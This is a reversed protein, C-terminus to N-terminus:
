KNQRLFVRIHERRALLRLLFREIYRFIKTALGEGGKLPDVLITWMGIRNGGWIDTLLRDGIMVSEKPKVGMFYLANKLGGLRPKFSGRVFPIGIERSLKWLRRIRLTNSFICLKFGKEKAKETWARVEPPVESKKGPVITNDLDLVIGKIGLSKLKNLNVEGLSPFHWHPVIGKGRAM